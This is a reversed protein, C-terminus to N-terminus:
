EQSFLATNRKGSMHVSRISSECRRVSREDSCVVCVQVLKYISGACSLVKSVVETVLFSYGTCGSLIALIRM